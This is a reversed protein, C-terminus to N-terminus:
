EWTFPGLVTDGANGLISDGDSNVIIEYELADLPHLLAATGKDGVMLVGGSSPNDDGVLIALAAPAAAGFSFPAALPSAPDTSLDVYGHDSHYVRGSIDATDADIGHALALTFDDFWVQQNANLDEVAFNLTMAESSGDMTGSAQLRGGIRIRDVGDEVTLGSFAEDIVMSGDPQVRSVISITGDITTECDFYNDFHLTADFNLFNTDSFNATGTVRGDGCPGPEDIPVQLAAARSAEVVALATRTAHRGATARGTGTRLSGIEQLGFGMQPGAATADTLDVANADDVVAKSTVGNYDVSVGGSAGDVGGGGGGGCGTLALALIVLATTLVQSIRRM